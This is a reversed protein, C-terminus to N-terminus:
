QQWQYVLNAGLFVATQLNKRNKGREYEWLFHELELWLWAVENRSKSRCLEMDQVDSYRWYIKLIGIWGCYFWWQIGILDGNLFVSHTTVRNLGTLRNRHWTAPWVRSTGASSHAAQPPGVVWAAFTPGPSPDFGILVMHSPSYVDVLWRNKPDQLGLSPKSEYVRGPNQSLWWVRGSPLISSAKKPKWPRHQPSPLKLLWSAPTINSICTPHHDWIKKPPFSASGCNLVEISCLM